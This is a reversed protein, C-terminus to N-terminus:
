RAVEFIHTCQCYGIGILWKHLLRNCLDGTVIDAGRDCYGGKLHPEPALLARTKGAGASSRRRTNASRNDTSAAGRRHLARGAIRRQPVLLADVFDLAGFRGRLPGFRAAFGELGTEILAAFTVFVAILVLGFGLRFGVYGSVFFGFSAGFM